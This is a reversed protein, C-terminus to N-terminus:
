EQYTLGFPALLNQDLNEKAILVIVRSNEYVPNIWVTEMSENNLFNIQGTPFQTAIDYINKSDEIKPMFLIDGGKELLNLFDMINESVRFGEELFFNNYDSLNEKSVLCLSMEKQSLAVSLFDNLTEKLDM